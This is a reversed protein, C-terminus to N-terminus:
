THQPSLVARVGSTRSRLLFSSIVLTLGYAVLWFGLLLALALTSIGPSFIIITRAAVGVLRALITWGRHPM